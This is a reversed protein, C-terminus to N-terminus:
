YEISSIDYGMDLPASPLDPRRTDYEVVLNAYCLVIVSIIVM